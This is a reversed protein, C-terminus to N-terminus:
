ANGKDYGRSNVLEKIVMRDTRALDSLEQDFLDQGPPLHNFKANEGNPTGKKVTANTSLGHERGNLGEFNKEM